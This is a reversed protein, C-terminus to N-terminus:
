LKKDMNIRLKQLEKIDKIITLYYDNISQGDHMKVRFLKWFIEFHATHSQKGYLEQLYTLMEKATRIDEHQQQLDNSIFTLIYCKTKNDEDM